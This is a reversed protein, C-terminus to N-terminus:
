KNMVWTSAQGVVSTRSRGMLTSAPFSLYLTPRNSVVTTGLIVDTLVRDTAAPSSRRSAPLDALAAAHLWQRNAPNELPEDLSVGCHPCSGITKNGWAASVKSVLSRLSRNCRPCNTTFGVVWDISLVAVVIALIWAKDPTRILTPHYMAMGLLAIAWFWSFGQVFRARRVVYERITM